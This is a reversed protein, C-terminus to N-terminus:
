PYEVEVGNVVMRHFDRNRTELSSGTPRTLKLFADHLAVNPLDPNLAAMANRLRRELVVQGYEDREASPTDGAIDPGHAVHWGVRSLWDLAASEVMSESIIAMTM